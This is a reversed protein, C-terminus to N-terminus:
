TASRRAGPSLDADRTVETRWPRRGTFGKGIRARMSPSARTPSRAATGPSTLWTTSRRRSAAARTRRRPAGLLRFIAKELFRRQVALARPSSRITAALRRAPAARRRQHLLRLRDRVARARPAAGRRRGLGADAARKRSSRSARATSRRWGAARDAGARQRDGRAARAAAAPGLHPHQALHTSWGTSAHRSAQRPAAGRAAM